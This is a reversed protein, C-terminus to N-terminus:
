EGSLSFARKVREGFSLSKTGTCSSPDNRVNYDAADKVMANYRNDRTVQDEKGYSILLVDESKILRNAINNVEKGNLIFTLKASDQGDVYLGKDTEILSDGLTYGLNAFFHGWMVGAEHVHVVHNVNDHMHVRHKPENKEDSGCSQVEEYFTFNKFEDRQGNVYLAFNAHYHTSSSKYTIFRAAGLWFIGLIFGIALAGALSKSFGGQLRDKAKAFWASARTTIRSRM